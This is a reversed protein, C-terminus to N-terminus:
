QANFSNWGAVVSPRDRHEAVIAAISKALDSDPTHLLELLTRGTVDAAASESSDLEPFPEEPTAQEHM